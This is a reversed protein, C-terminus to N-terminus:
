FIPSVRLSHDGYFLILDIYIMSEIGVVGYLKLTPWGLISYSVKMSDELGLKCLIASTSSIEPAGLACLDGFFTLHVM